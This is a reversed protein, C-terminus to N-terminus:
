IGKVAARRRRRAVHRLAAVIKDAASAEFANLAILPPRASQRLKLAAPPVFDRPGPLREIAASLDVALAIAARPSYPYEVLGVGRVELLGAITKPASATLVGRVVVLECRDDAVLKAGRGILRLALDSKGAGSPGLLLVGKGGIAVCTAHINVRGSM